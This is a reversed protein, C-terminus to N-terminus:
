RFKVFYISVAIIAFCFLFALFPIKLGSWMSSKAILDKAAYRKTERHFPIGRYLLNESMILYFVSVLLIMVSLGLAGLNDFTDFVVKQFDAIGSELEITKQVDDQKSKIENEPNKLAMVAFALSTPLAYIATWLTQKSRAKHASQEKTADISFELAEFERQVFGHDSFTKRFARLYAIRGKANLAKEETCNQRAFIISQYLIREVHIKWSQESDLLHVETVADDSESHHYHRHFLDRIFRFTEDARQKATAPLNKVDIEDYRSKFIKTNGIQCEGNRQLEFMCVCIQPMGKPQKATEAYPLLLGEVNTKLDRHINQIESHNKSGKQFYRQGARRFVDTWKDRIRSDHLIFVSGTLQEGDNDCDALVFYDVADNPIYADGLVANSLHRFLRPTISRVMARFATDNTIRRHFKAVVRNSIDPKIPDRVDESYGAKAICQGWQTTTQFSLRGSVTPVWGVFVDGSM